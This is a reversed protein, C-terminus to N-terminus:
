RIIIALHPYIAAASLIPDDAKETISQAYSGM